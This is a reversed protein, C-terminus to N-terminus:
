RRAPAASPIFNWARPSNAYLPAPFIIAARRTVFLPLCSVSSNRANKAGLVRARRWETDKKTASPRAAVKKGESHVTRTRGRERERGKALSRIISHCGRGTTKRRRRAPVDVHCTKSRYDAYIFVRTLTRSLSLSLLIYLHVEIIPVSSSATENESSAGAAWNRRTKRFSASARPSNPSRKTSHLM